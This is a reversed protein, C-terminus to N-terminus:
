ATRKHITSDLSAFLGPREAEAERGGERQIYFIKGPLVTVRM